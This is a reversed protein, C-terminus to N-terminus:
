KAASSANGLAALLENLAKFEATEDQARTTCRLKFINNAQAWIYTDSPVTEDGITLQFRSWLAQKPSSGLPKIGSDLEKAADWQGLEVAQQIGTKARRMEDQVPGQKLNESIKDLGRTYQYFTVFVGSPHDFLVTFGHDEQPLSEPESRTWGEVDPLNIAPAPPTAEAARRQMEEVEALLEEKTVTETAASGGAPQQNNCGAVFVISLLIAFHIKHLM